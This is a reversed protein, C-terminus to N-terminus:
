RWSKRMVKTRHRRRQPKVKSGEPSSQEVNFRWLEAWALTLPLNLSSAVRSRRRTQTCYFVWIFVLAAPRCWPFLFAYDPQGSSLRLQHWSCCFLCARVFWIIGSLLKAKTVNPLFFSRRPVRSRPPFFCFVAPGLPSGKGGGWAPLGTM